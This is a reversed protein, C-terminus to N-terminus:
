ALVGNDNNNNNFSHNSSQHVGSVARGSPDAMKKWSEEWELAAPTSCAISPGGLVTEAAHRGPFHSEFIRRYYFAEKTVPTNHPFLVSASAFDLDSVEREARNQLGDIWSYGVGDSFQEKQRWLVSSPLYPNVQDDFAKRLIWKEIRDGTIMKEKADVTMAVELFDRDLFPERAEVGWAATAKNARLCDYKSLLSLKRLTEEHFEKASPAKHFYLYGGFIEDAGEGSLVMKVGMAKIRRSLLFMPTSARITTVDYTEIHYIVQPLADLGEELTFHFEHHVTGLFNAVEQAAKLDPSGSMGISFTHVRPWWSDILQERKKAYRSVISAVM